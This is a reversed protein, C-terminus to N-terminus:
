REAEKHLDALNKGGRAILMEVIVLAPTRNRTEGLSYEAVELPTDTGFVQNVQAGHDLLWRVAEPRHYSIAEWLAPYSSVGGHEYTACGDVKAGKAFLDPLRRVDGNRAAEVFELQVPDDVTRM